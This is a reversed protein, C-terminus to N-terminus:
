IVPRAIAPMGISSANLRTMQLKDQTYFSAARLKRADEYASVELAAIRSGTLKSKFDEVGLEPRPFCRRTARSAGLAM